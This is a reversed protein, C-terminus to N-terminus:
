LNPHFEPLGAKKRGEETILGDDSYDYGIRHLQKLNSLYMLGDDTFPTYSMDLEELLLLNGIYRLSTDTLGKCDSVLLSRLHELQSVHYIGNDTIDENSNLNLEELLALKGVVKMAEDTINCYILQLEKLHKAKSIYTFCSDDVLSWNLDLIKVNPLM